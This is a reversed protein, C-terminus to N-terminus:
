GGSPPPGAGVAQRGLDDVAVERRRVHQGVRARAQHGPQEVELEGTGAEPYLVDQGRQTVGRREARRIPLSSAVVRQSAAL